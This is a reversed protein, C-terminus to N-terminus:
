VWRMTPLLSLVALFFGLPTQPLLPCLPWKTKKMHRQKNDSDEQRKNRKGRPGRSRRSRGGEGKEYFQPINSKFDPDGSDSPAVEENKQFLFSLSLSTLLLPPLPNYRLSKKFAKSNNFPLNLRQSM